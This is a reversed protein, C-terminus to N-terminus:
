AAKKHDDFIDTVPLPVSETRGKSADFFKFKSNFAGETLAVRLTADDFEAFGCTGQITLVLVFIGICCKIGSLRCGCYEPM